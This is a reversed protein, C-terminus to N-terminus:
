VATRESGRFLSNRGRAALGQALSVLNPNSGDAGNFNVLTTFSQARLATTAALMMLIAGVMTAASRRNRQTSTM